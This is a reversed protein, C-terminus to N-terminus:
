CRTSRRWWSCARCTPPWRAGVRARLDRAARAPAARAFLCLTWDRLQEGDKLFFFTLVVILVVAAAWQVVCCRAPSCAHRGVKGGQLQERARSSRTRRRGRGTVGSRSARRRRGAGRGAPRQRGRRAGPAVFPPIVLGWLGLFVVLALLSRSRRRGAGAPAQAARLWRALPALLTALLLAIIVPLVVVM